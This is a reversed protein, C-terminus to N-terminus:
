NEKLDYDDDISYNNYDYHMMEPSPEFAYKMEKKVHKKPLPLPNEIFKIPKVVEKEKNEEIAANINEMKNLEVTEPLTNAVSLSDPSVGETTNTDEIVIDTNVVMATDRKFMSFLICLGVVVGLAIHEYLGLITYYSTLRENLWKYFLFVNLQLNNWLYFMVTFGIVASTIYCFLQVGKEKLSYNKNILLLLLFAILLYFGAVDVYCSIGVIIGSLFYKFYSNKGKPYLCTCAWFICGCLMWILHLPTDVDIPYVAVNAIISIFLLFLTLTYSCIKKAGYFFFIIGLLQMILNFILVLEEKNGLFSFFVSLGWVYLSNQNLSKIVFNNGSQVFAQFFLEGGTNVRWNSLIAQYVGLGTIITIAIILIGIEFLLKGTRKRIDISQSNM